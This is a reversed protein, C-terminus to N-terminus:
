LVLAVFCLAFLAAVLRSPLRLLLFSKEHGELHVSFFLHAMRLLQYVVFALVVGCIVSVLSLVFFLLEM